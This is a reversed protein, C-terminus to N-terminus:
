DVLLCNGSFLLFLVTILHFQIQEFKSYNRFTLSENFVVTKTLILVRINSFERFIYLQLSVASAVIDIRWLQLEVNTIKKGDLRICNM